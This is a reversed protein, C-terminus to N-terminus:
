FGQKEVRMPKGKPSNHLWKNPLGSNLVISFIQGLLILLIATFLLLRMFLMIKDRIRTILVIRM